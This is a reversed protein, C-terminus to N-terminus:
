KISTLVKCINSSANGDGFIPPSDTPIQLESILKFIRAGDIGAIQNWGTEVTEVWETENRLTICPVQLMYAEKQVGGSDTLILKANRELNLMDLYSLPKEIILNSATLYEELHWQRILKETRPHLPFVVKHDLQRLSDLLQSLLGPNDTNEARHITSLYYNSPSLKLKELIGSHQMALDKYQLVSDYMVDGVLHVQQQIGERELNRVAVETPCFLLTSLHDTVVRNIEEPMKKNFSRLGSEVHAITIGLKSAALSAALTSNTDGYVLLLQPQEVQLVTEIAEIMRGTQKGHTDSGIGLHYKPTPLDLQKFFIASMEDDYHQGTHVIIEEVRGQLIRSIMSAKIFQPRAGIVTVIKM